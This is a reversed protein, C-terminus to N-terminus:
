EKEKAIKDALIFSTIMSIFLISTKIMIFINITDGDFFGIIAVIFMGFVVPFATLLIVCRREIPEKIAWVLLFTWGTMLSGGIGMILRVQLDPNFDPKGTLVGFVPPFLLGVAWLADACIGLWYAIKILFIKKKKENMM